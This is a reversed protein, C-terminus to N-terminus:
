FWRNTDTDVRGWVMLSHDVFDSGHVLLNGKRFTFPCFFFSFSASFLSTFWFIIEFFAICIFAYSKSLVIVELDFNFACESMPTDFGCTGLKTVAMEAFGKGRPGRM